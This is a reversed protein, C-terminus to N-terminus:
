KKKSIKEVKKGFKIYVDELENITAIAEKKVKKM